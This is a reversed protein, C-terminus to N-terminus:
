PTSGPLDDDDTGGTHDDDNDSTPRKSRMYWLPDPHPVPRLPHKAVRRVRRGWILLGAFALIIVMLTLVLLVLVADVDRKQALHPKSKTKDVETAKIEEVSVFTPSEDAFAKSLSGFRLFVLCWGCSFLVYSLLAMVHTQRHSRGIHEASEPRPSFMADGFDRM